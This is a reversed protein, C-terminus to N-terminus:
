LQFTPNELELLWAELVSLSVSLLSNIMLISDSFHHVQQTKLSGCHPAGMTCFLISFERYLFCEFFAQNNEMKLVIRKPPQAISCSTVQEPHFFISSFFLLQSVRKPPPFSFLLEALDLDAPKQQMTHLGKMLKSLCFCGPKFTSWYFLIYLWTLCLLVFASKHSSRCM